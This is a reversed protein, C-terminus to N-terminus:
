LKTDAKKMAKLRVAVFDSRSKAAAQSLALVARDPVRMDLTTIEREFVRQERALVEVRALAQPVDFEPLKIRIGNALEIDWRRKAVLMYSTVKTAIEPYAAVLPLIDSAAEAAGKGVLHPLHGFRNNILDAIGFRDIERGTEEIVTLRDDQQLVAMPRREAIAVTMKGPYLKRIAVDKVWPLALLRGRADAASFGVLSQKAGLGLARYVDTESTEIQGTIVIDTAKLGASSALASVVVPAHGGVTLGYGWGATIFGLALVSGVGTRLPRAERVAARLRRATIWRAFLSGHVPAAEGRTHACSAKDLGVLRLLGNVSSM